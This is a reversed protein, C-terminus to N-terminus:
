TTVEVGTVHADAVALRIIDWGRETLIEEIVSDWAATARVRAWEEDTFKKEVIEGTRGVDELQSEADARTFMTGAWGFRHRLARLVRLADDEKGLLFARKLELMTYALHKEASSRRKKPGHKAM